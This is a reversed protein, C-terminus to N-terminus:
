WRSSVIWGSERIEGRNHIMAEEVWREIIAARSVVNVGGAAHKLERSAYVSRFVANSTGSAIM